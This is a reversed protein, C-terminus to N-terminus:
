EGGVTFSWPITKKEIHKVVHQLVVGTLTITIIVALQKDTQFSAGALQLLRGLNVLALFLEAIIMGRVARGAGLHLAAFVSPLSAPLLVNRQTDWWSLGFSEATSLYDQDIARVGEYTVILIEFFCTLFVYFVRAQWWLGFWVIIIPLFALPPTAYIADIFPNVAWRVVQIRAMLFGLPLGVVIAIAFGLFMHQISNTWATILEGGRLYGIWEVIVASPPELITLEDFLYGSFLEWVLLGGIVSLASILAYYQRSSLISHEGFPHILRDKTISM